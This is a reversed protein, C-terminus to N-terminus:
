LQCSSMVHSFVGPILIPRRVGNYCQFSESWFYVSM